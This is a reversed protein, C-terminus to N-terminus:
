TQICTGHVRVTGPACGPVPGHHLEAFVVWTVLLALVVLVAIIWRVRLVRGVSPVVGSLILDPLGSYAQAPAPLNACVLSTIGQNIL